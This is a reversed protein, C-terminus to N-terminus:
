LTVKNTHDGAHPTSLFTCHSEHRGQNKIAEVCATFIAQQQHRGAQGQLSWYGNQGKGLGRTPQHCLSWMKKELAPLNSGKDGGTGM